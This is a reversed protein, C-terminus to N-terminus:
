LELFELFEYLEEIFVDKFDKLDSVEGNYLIDEVIQICSIVNECFEMVNFKYIEFM